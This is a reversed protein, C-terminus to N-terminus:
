AAGAKRRLRRIREFDLGRDQAWRNIYATAYASIRKQRNALSHRGDCVDRQGCAYTVADFCLRTAATISEMDLDSLRRAGCISRIVEIDLPASAERGAAEGLADFDLQECKAISHIGGGIQPLLIDLNYVALLVIREEGAM